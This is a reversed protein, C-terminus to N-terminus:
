LLRNPHEVQDAVRLALTVPERFWRITQMLRRRFPSVEPLGFKARQNRYWQGAKERYQTGGTLSGGHLRFLSWYDHVVGFNAGHRAFEMMLEGDWHLRSRNNFGGVKHFLSSRFFTSQQVVTCCDYFCRRWSVKHSFLRQLRRGDGDILWGHGSIVDLHPRTEFLASVKALTGPLLVDDSNLYGYIEGRAAAFGRNLCATATSDPLDIVRDIRDRHREIISRSGDTSGGEVVIYELDVGSQQIVSLLAEELFKSQNYSVTVM